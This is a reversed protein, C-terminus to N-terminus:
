EEQAAKCIIEACVEPSINGTDLCLTYEHVDGWHRDTFYNYYAIRQKDRKKMAALIENRDDTGLLEGVRVIRSEVDEHLFVSVADVDAAKLVASACRGLLVCPGEAALDLIARTENEFVVRKMDFAIPIIANIFTDGGTIKEEEIELEEAPVGSTSAAQKVIDKDYLPIGLKESVICGVTHGGAGYERDIAIVKM